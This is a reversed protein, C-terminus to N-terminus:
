VYIYNCINYIYVHHTKIVLILITYLIVTDFRKKYHNKEKTYFIFCM